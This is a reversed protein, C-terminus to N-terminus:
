HSAFVLSFAVAFVFVSTFQIAANAWKAKILGIRRDRRNEIQKATAAKKEETKKFREYESFDALFGIPRNAPAPQDANSYIILEGKDM